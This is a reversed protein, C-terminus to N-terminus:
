ARKWLQCTSEVLSVCRLTFTTLLVAKWSTSSGCGNSPLPHSLSVFLGGESAATQNEDDISFSPDSAHTM